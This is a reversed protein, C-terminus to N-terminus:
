LLLIVHPNWALTYVLRFSRLLMLLRIAWLQILFVQDCLLHAVFALGM